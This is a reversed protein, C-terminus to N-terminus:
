RCFCSDFSEYDPLVDPQCATRLFMSTRWVALDAQPKSYLPVVLPEKKNKKGKLFTTSVELVLTNGDSVSNRLLSLKM